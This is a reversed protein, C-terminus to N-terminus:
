KRNYDIEAGIIQKIESPSFEKPDNDTIINKVIVKARGGFGYKRNNFSLVSNLTKCIKNAAIQGSNTEKAADNDLWVLIIAYQSAWEQLSLFPAKTGWLCVSDAHEAIRIASLFDEVIVLTDNGGLFLAPAKAGFSQIRRTVGNLRTQYCVVIGGVIYPFLLAGQATQGIRYKRILEDEIYYKMLWQRNELSFRTPEWECEPQEPISPRTDQYSFSRDANKSYGCSFCHYGNPYICFPRGRHGGGCSPCSAHSSLFSM